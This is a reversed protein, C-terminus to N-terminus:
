GRRTPAVIRGSSIIGPDDTEPEPADRAVALGEIAFTMLKGSIPQDISNLFTCLIRESRIYWTDRDIARVDSAIAM